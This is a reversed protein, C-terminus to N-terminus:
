LIKYWEEKLEQLKTIETTSVYLDAISEKWLMVFTYIVCKHSKMFSFLSTEMCTVGGNKPLFKPIFLTLQVHM